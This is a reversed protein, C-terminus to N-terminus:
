RRQRELTCSRLGFAFSFSLKADGKEAMRNVQDQIIEVGGAFDRLLALDESITSTKAFLGYLSVLELKWRAKLRLFEIHM